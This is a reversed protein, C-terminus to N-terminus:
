DKPVKAFNRFTLLLKMVDTYGDKRVDTHFLEAQVPRNKM